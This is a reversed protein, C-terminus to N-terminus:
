FFARVLRFHEHALAAKVARRGTFDGLRMSVVGTFGLEHIVNCLRSYLEHFEPRHTHSLVLECPPSIHFGTGDVADNNRTHAVAAGFSPPFSKGTEEVRVACTVPNAVRRVRYIDLHVSLRFRGAHEIASQRFDQRGGDM